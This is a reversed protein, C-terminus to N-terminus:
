QEGSGAKSSYPEYKSEKPEPEIHATAPPEVLKSHVTPTFMTTFNGKSSPNSTLEQEWNTLHTPSQNDKITSAHSNYFTYQYNHPDSQM